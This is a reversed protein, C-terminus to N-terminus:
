GARPPEFIATIFPSPSLDIQHASILGTLNAPQVVVGNAGLATSAAGVASSPPSGAGGGVPCDTMPALDLLARFADLKLPLEFPAFHEIPSTGAGSSESFHAANNQPSAFPLFSADARSDLGVVASFLWALVSFAVRRGVPGVVVDGGFDARESALIVLLERASVNPCHLDRLSRRM